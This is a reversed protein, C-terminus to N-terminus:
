GGMRGSEGTLESGDMRGSGDTLFNRYVQLATLHCYLSCSDPDHCAPKQSGDPYGALVGQQFHMM